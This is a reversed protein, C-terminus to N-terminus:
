SFWGSPTILRGRLTVAVAEWQGRAAAVSAPRDTACATNTGTRPHRLVLLPADAQDHAVIGRRMALSLLALPGGIGHAMGSNGDNRAM